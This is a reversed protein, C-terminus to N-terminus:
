EKMAVQYKEVEKEYSEQNVQKESCLELCGNEGSRIFYPSPSSSALFYQSISSLYLRPHYKHTVYTDMEMEPETPKVPKNKDLFDIIAGRFNQSM